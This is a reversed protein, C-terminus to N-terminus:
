ALGARANRVRWYKQVFGPRSDGPTLKRAAALWKDLLEDHKAFAETPEPPNESWDAELANREPVFLDRYALPNQAVLRHFKEHRWWLSNDAKDTPEGLSLPQDIRVPKFLSTCPAATATVWHRIGHEKTMETVWSATTQSSAIVGGGHMCPSAMAGNIWRYAPESYRAGHDRLAAFLHPVGRTKASLMHTRGQRTRCSSIRTKWYESHKEAFGPITLGNSITRTGDVKEIAHARGATELVFASKPDAIMFSNQYAFDRKEHGAGGGQGYQELLSVIVSCAKEATDARELALRLLDMGILGPKPENKTKTFVTENGICVGHENTGMEAGWIWFPRSLLTAYTEEVQPIEIWTCKVKAGAAYQARANWQLYQAENPDRDSNKAFYVADKRVIAITDCM